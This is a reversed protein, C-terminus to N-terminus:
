SRTRSRTTRVSTQWSGRQSNLSRRKFTQHALASVVHRDLVATTGHAAGPTASAAESQISASGTNESRVQTTTENSACAPVTQRELYEALQEPTYFIRAGIRVFGLKSRLREARVTSSKVRLVAAAEHETLLQPLDNGPTDMFARARYRCGLMGLRREADLADVKFGSSLHVVACNSTRLSSSRTVSMARM